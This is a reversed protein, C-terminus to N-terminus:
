DAPRGGLLGRDLLSPSRSLFSVHPHRHRSRTARRSDHTTPVQISSGRTGVGTAANRKTGIQRIIKASISRIATSAKARRESASANGRCWVEHARDRGGPHARGTRGPRRVRTRQQGDGAVGRQSRQASRLRIIGAPQASTELRTEVRVVDGFRAPTRYEIRLGTVAFHHGGEAVETYPMGAADLWAIRGAELWVAYVSHHVVGM